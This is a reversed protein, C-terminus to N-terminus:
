VYQAGMFEDLTSPMCWERWECEKIICIVAAEHAHNPPTRAKELMQKEIEDTFEDMQVFWITHGSYEERNDFGGSM